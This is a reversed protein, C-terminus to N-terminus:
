LLELGELMLKLNDPDIPKKIFGIAGAEKTMEIAHEQIDASVIIINADEYLDCITQTAEFGTMVPMTLDMFCLDPTHLKYLDVAEQGNSAELIELEENIINKLSKITMKRAMKSDDVVLYKM